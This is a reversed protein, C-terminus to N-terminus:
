RLIVFQLLVTIFLLCTLLSALSLTVYKVITEM